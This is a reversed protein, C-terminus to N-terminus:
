LQLGQGFDLRTEDKGTEVRVISPGNAIVQTIAKDLVGSGRYDADEECGDRGGADKEM